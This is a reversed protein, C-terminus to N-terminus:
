LYGVRASLYPDFYGDAVSAAVQTGSSALPFYQTQGAWALGIRDFEVDGIFQGVKAPNGYSATIHPIWPSHQEPFDPFENQAAHFVEDHVQRLDDSDGLLYVGAPNEDPNFVAHAFVRATITTFSDAFQGLARSLGVPDPQTTVDEGLYVLTLHLDEPREGGPIALEDTLDDRLYLAVMGGTSRAQEADAMVWRHGQRVLTM